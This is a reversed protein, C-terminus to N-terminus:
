HLYLKFVVFVSPRDNDFGGILNGVLDFKELGILFVILHIFQSDGHGIGFFFVEHLSISEHVEPSPFLETFAAVFTKLKILCAIKIVELTLSQSFHFLIVFFYLQGFLRNFYLWPYRCIVSVQTSSVVFNFLVLFGDLLVVFGYLEFWFICYIIMVLTSRVKPHFVILLSFLTEILCDFKVFLLSNRKSPIRVTLLLQSIKLLCLM